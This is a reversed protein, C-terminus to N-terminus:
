SRVLRRVMLRSMAAYTFTDGSEPLREYDKSMRCNQGLLSFAREVVWRRPLFARPGKEPPLKQRDIAVGEKSWERMWTKMVEEPVMKPPHRVIEATWGLARKM